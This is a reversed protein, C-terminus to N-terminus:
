KCKGYKRYSEILWCSNYKCATVADACMLDTKGIKEYLQARDTYHFGDKPNMKLATSLEDAAKQYQELSKYYTARFIYPRTDDPALKQVVAFDKLIKEDFVPVFPRGASIAEEKEDLNRLVMILSYQAGRGVYAEVNNKDLEIIKSFDDAAKRLYDYQEYKSINDKRSFGGYIEARGNYGEIFNADLKITFSFDALAEDLKGQIYYVWARKYYGYTDGPVMGIYTSYDAVAREYDETADYQEARMAYYYSNAKDLEIAKSYDDIAQKSHGSKVNADARQAYFFASGPTKQIASGYDAIADQYKEMQKYADARYSYNEGNPDIKIAKSFDALANTYSKMKMYILARNIYRYANGPELEIAKSFDKVALDNKGTDDYFRARADYFYPSDPTLSIAKTYDKLALENKESQAYVSARSVYINGDNPAIKIADDFDKLSSGTNGIKFYLNARDTRYYTNKPSLKIASTLYELADQPTDTYLYTYAISAYAGSDNPDLKIITLYDNRSLETKGALSYLNARTEYLEKVFPDKNIADSILKVAKESEGLTHSFLYALAALAKYNAPNLSVATSYDSVAKDTQEVMEYFNGRFFYAEDYKPNLEIAKNLYGLAKRKDDYSVNERGTIDFAQNFYSVASLLNASNNNDDKLKAQQEEILRKQAENQANKLDIELKRAKEELAKNAELQEKLRSQVFAYDSMLKENNRIREIDSKLTDSNVTAKVTVAIVYVGNEILNQVDTVQTSLLGSAIAEIQDKELTGNQVRTYSKIYTGAEEVIAQKADAVAFTKADDASQTTGVVKKVTKQYVKIEANATISILTLVLIIFIFLNRM